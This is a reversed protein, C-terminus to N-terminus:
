KTGIVEIEVRRDPQLCEILKKSKVDSKGCKDGTVPQKEGKGEAYVRNAEVGKGVLYDKVAAARRESLKQNYTDKGIRDAHGVAIIVELKIGKIDDALKGLKSKGEARLVAKDFDFLADAALTVKQAAPKPAAAPAPAPAAAPAAMPAEKKVLDPDCEAIAMAPTWYGTRWCLGTGSKAVNGRADIVYGVNGKMDIGPTQAQAAVGICALTAALLINKSILKMM